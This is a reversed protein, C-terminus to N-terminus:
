GRSALKALEKVRPDRVEERIYKMDLDDFAVKKALALDLARSRLEPDRRSLIVNRLGVRDWEEEFSLKECRKWADEVLAADHAYRVISLLQEGKKTKPLLRRAAEDQDAPVESKRLVHELDDLDTIGRALLRAGARNRVSQVKTFVMVHTVNGDDADLAELRSFAAEALPPEEVQKLVNVVTDVDLEQADLLAWARRAYEGEPYTWFILELHEPTAHTTLITEAARAQEDPEGGLVARQLDEDM